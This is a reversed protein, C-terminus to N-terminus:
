TTKHAICLYFEGPKSSRKYRSHYLRHYLMGGLVAPVDVAPVDVTKKPLYRSIGNKKPSVTKKLNKKTNRVKKGLVGERSM